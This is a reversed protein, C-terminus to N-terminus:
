DLVPWEHQINENSIKGLKTSDFQPIEATRCIKAPLIPRNENLGALNASFLKERVELMLLFNQAQSPSLHHKDDLMPIIEDWWSIGFQWLLNSDNYSDRFYGREYMKEYFKEVTLQALRREPTGFKLRDRDSVGTRTPAL